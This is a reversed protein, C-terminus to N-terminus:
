LGAVGYKLMDKKLRLVQRYSLEVEEAAKSGSILGNAFNEITNIRKLENAGLLDKM